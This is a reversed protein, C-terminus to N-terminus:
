LITLKPRTKKLSSHRNWVVGKRSEHYVTSYLYTEQPTILCIDYFHTRSHVHRTPDPRAM